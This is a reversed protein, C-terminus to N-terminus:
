TIMMNGQLQHRYYDYILTILLLSLMKRSGMQTHINQTHRATAHKSGVLSASDKDGIHKASVAGASSM